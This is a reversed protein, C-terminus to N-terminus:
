QITDVSGVMSSGLPKGSRYLYCLMIQMKSNFQLRSIRGISAINSKVQLIIFNDNFKTWLKPLLTYDAPSDEEFCMYKNERHGHARHVGKFQLQGRTAGAEGM